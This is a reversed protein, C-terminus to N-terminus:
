WNLLWDSLEIIRSNDFVVITADRIIWVLVRQSFRALEKFDEGIPFKVLHFRHLAIIVGHSVNTLKKLDGEEERQM